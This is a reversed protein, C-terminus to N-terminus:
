SACLDRKSVRIKSHKDGIKQDKEDQSQYLKKNEMQISNQLSQNISHREDSLVRSEEVHTGKDM